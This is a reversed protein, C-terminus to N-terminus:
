LSQSTGVDALLLSSVWSLWCLKVGLRFAQSGLSVIILTGTQLWCTWVWSFDINWNSDSPLLNLGLDAILCSSNGSKTRNLDEPSQIPGMWRLSSLRPKNLRGIWINIYDLFVENVGLSHHKVVCDPHRTAWGIQCM